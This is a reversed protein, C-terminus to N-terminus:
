AGTIQISSSLALSGPSRLPNDDGYQICQRHPYLVGCNLILLHRPEQATMRHEPRLFPALGAPGDLCLSCSVLSFFFTCSMLGALTAAPCMTNAWENKAHIHAGSPGDEPRRGNSKFGFKLSKKKLLSTQFIPLHLYLISQQNISFFPPPTFMGQDNPIHFEIRCKM